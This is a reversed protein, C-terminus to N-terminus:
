VLSLKYIRIHIGLATLDNPSFMHALGSEIQTQLMRENPFIHAQAGSRLPVVAKVLEGLRTAPRM